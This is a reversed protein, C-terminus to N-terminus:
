HIDKIGRCGKNVQMRREGEQSEGEECGKKLAGKSQLKPLNSVCSCM